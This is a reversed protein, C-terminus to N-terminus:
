PARYRAMALGLRGPLLPSIVDGVLLPRGQRDVSLSAMTVKSNAGFGTRIRGFRRDLKGRRTVHALAFGKARNGPRQPLISTTALFAGGRKDAAMAVSFAGTHAFLVRLRGRNGFGTAPRGDRRYRTVTVQLGSPTLASGALTLRGRGDTSLESEEDYDVRVEGNEGFGLSLFGRPSLRVVGGIAGERGTSLLSLVYLSGDPSLASRAAGLPAFGRAVGDAAYSRDQSGDPALRAVLGETQGILGFKSTTYRAVRNATVLIRGSRDVAVAAVQLSVGGRFSAPANPPTEAEPLGLDTFLVKGGNFSPDPSGDPLLRTVALLRDEAVPTAYGHEKVKVGGAVVLRGQSDIVLRAGYEYPIRELLPVIGETGFSLDTSGDPEFAMLTGRYLAYITGSPSQEVQTTFITKSPTERVIRGGDGFSPDLAGRAQAAAPLAAVTALVALVLFVAIKKM